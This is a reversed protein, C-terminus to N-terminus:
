IPFDEVGESKAQSNLRGTFVRLTYIRDKIMKEAKEENEITRTYLDFLLTGLFVHCPRCKLKDKSDCVIGKREKVQITKQYKKLEL